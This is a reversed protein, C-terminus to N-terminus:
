DRLLKDYSKMREKHKKLYLLLKGIFKPIGFLVDDGKCVFYEDAIGNTNHWVYVAM